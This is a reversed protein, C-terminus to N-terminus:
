HAAATGPQTVGRLIGERIRQAKEGAQSNEALRYSTEAAEGLRFDLIMNKPGRRIGLRLSGGKKQAYVWRDPNRPPETHNWSTIVDDPHLGAQEAAGGSEVERVVLSGTEDRGASFGLSSHKREITSLNLGALGFLQQYPLAEAGAIYRQFFDTFSGGAIKEVSLQVDLSDRYTQNRKAFQENMFRMVDDLSHQDDSRDRIVIDLLVGLVQGKTYYSISNEPRNYLPYKEMWADLSSQEASQWRNAPRAELESIQQALDQYFQEKSWLGTRVMTYAAYTNTVGEAFWLARTYQEKTYDVPDLTAPRIRKVNWLHFFEHAAVNAFDADSKVSIATSDSHEMGGGEGTAAKGFHVIFTYNPYPAGEMLKVEYGCIRRLAEQVLPKKWEDGAIVARVKPVLGPIEFEELKGAEIPADALEDFSTAGFTHPRERPTLEGAEASSSTAMWQAPLDLIELRVSENRREPVYMLIMAPNIFAHEANLQTAFPGGEDWYTAYRITITGSGRIRWTQKDVKEVAASAADASAEVKGVHSGFDRIEYLANWAPMQVVVEDKVDSIEMRVQFVHNEPHAVSVQYGIVAEAPAALSLTLLCVPITAVLFCRGLM